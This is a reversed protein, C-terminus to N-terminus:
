GIATVIIGHRRSDPLYRPLCQDIVCNLTVLRFWNTDVALNVFLVWTDTAFALPERGRPVGPVEAREFRPILFSRVCSGGRKRPSSPYAFLHDMVQVPLKHIDGMPLTALLAMFEKVNKDFNVMLSHNDFFRGMMVNERISNILAMNEQLLACM